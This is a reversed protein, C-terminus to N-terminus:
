ILIHMAFTMIDMYVLVTFTNPRRKLVGEIFQVMPIGEVNTKIANPSGETGLTGLINIYM